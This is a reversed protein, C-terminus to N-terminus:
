LDNEMQNQNERVAIVPIGQELSAITPLGVCGEPIVLRSIDAATLVAPHTFLM